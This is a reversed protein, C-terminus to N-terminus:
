IFAECGYSQFASGPLDGLGTFSIGAHAALAAALWAATGFPIRNWHTRM